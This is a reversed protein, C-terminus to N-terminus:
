WAVVTVVLVVLVVLFVVVVLECRMILSALSSSPPEITQILTFCSNLFVFLICVLVWLWYKCDGDGGNGAVNCEVWWCGKVVMVNRGVFAQRGARYKLLWASIMARLLSVFMIITKLAHTM